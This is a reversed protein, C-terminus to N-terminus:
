SGVLSRLLMPCFDLNAFTLFIDSNCCVHCSAIMIYFWKEKFIRAFRLLFYHQAVDNQLQYATLGYAVIVDSVFFILGRVILDDGPDNNNYVFNLIYKSDTTRIAVTTLVLM